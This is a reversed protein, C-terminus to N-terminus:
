HGQGRRPSPFAGVSRNFLILENFTDISILEYGFLYGLLDGEKIYVM